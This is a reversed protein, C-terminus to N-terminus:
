VYDAYKSCIKTNNAQTECSAGTQCHAESSACSEGADLEAVLDGFILGTKDTLQFSTIFPTRVDLEKFCWLCYDWLFLDTREKQKNTKSSHLITGYWRKALMIWFLFIDREQWLYQPMTLIHFFIQLFYLSLPGWKLLEWSDERLPKQYDFVLSQRVGLNSNEVAM